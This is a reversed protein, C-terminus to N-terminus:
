AFHHLAITPGHHGLPILILLTQNLQKSLALLTDLYFLILKANIKAIKSTSKMMLPLVM